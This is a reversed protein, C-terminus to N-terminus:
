AGATSYGRGNGPFAPGMEQAPSPECVGRGLVSQEVGGRPAGDGVVPCM